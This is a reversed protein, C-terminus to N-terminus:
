RNILDKTHGLAPSKVFFGFIQWQDDHKILAVRIIADGKDFYAKADYQANIMKGKQSSASILAQGQPSDFTLFRGLKEFSRFLQDLQQQSVAGKLEPSARDLLAQENWGNLIAPIAAAVYVKSEKDLTNGRVAIYWFSIGGLVVVVLFIVGLTVFFKKM